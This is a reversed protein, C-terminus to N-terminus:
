FDIKILMINMFSGNAELCRGHRLACPPPLGMTIPRRPSGGAPLPEVALSLNEPFAAGRLCRIVGAVSLFHALVSSRHFCILDHFPLDSADGFGKENMQPNEKKCRAEM